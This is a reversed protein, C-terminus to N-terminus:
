ETEPRNVALGRVQLGGSIFLLALALWLLWVSVTLLTPLDLIGAILFLILAVSQVIMKAKGFNNSPRMTRTRVLIRAGIASVVLEIVILALMIQVVLYTYGVWALVAAVLLKDAIPDAYTGFLTIQDRLRAMAGDIFDTCMAALFVGFAWWRLDLYLLVLVVPILVLRAITVQNPRVSYPIAWLFLKAVVRDTHRQYGGKAPTAAVPDAPSDLSPTDPAQHM